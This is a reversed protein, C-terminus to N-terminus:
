SPWDFRGGGGFAVQATGVMEGGRLGPVLPRGQFQGGGGLCRALGTRRHATQTASLRGYVPQWGAGASVAWEMASGSIYPTTRQRMPCVRGKQGPAGLDMLCSRRRSSGRFMALM